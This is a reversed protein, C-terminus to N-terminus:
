KKNNKSEFYKARINKAKTIESRPTKNTKKDLGHSGIILTETKETKDWFAFVRYFKNQDRQRFEWIGDELHEFWRGKYGSELKDFAVLFKEKLKEDLGEFYKNAEKMLKVKIPKNCKRM